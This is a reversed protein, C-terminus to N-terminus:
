STGRGDFKQQAALVAPMQAQLHTFLALLQQAIGQGSPSLSYEVHM